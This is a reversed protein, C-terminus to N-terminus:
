AGALHNLIAENVAEAAELAVAHGAGSVVVSKAGPIEQALAEAGPTLLDRSGAVVLTPARVGGLADARTGSWARLGAAWRALSPASVRGAIEALGREVRDRARPDALTEAAFLWPLLMKALATPSGMAGVACWADIVALLTPSAFVFPTVLTLSRVRDHHEFAMELAVAAGLSAGIVHAPEEILSAVDAAATRVDYGETEPADSLGVGRPNVGLVAFRQALVPVQRAFAAVDIGFGPLLVVPRGTGQQPVELSVGEAVRRLARRREAFAEVDEKTIRGGPGRGPITELPFGLNKALARAAPAALVRGVRRAAPEGAEGAGARAAGGPGLTAGALMGQDASAVPRHHDAHFAEADFPEDAGATIAGLLSGCPVVEEPEVYIHRLIGAATAEIEVEAKESEIILVTQGKDVHEGLPIPWAIVKGESMTLGLKPMAIPTAM